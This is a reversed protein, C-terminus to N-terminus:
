QESVFEFVRTILDHVAHADEIDAEIFAYELDEFFQVLTEASDSDHNDLAVLLELQEKRTFGSFIARSAKGVDIKDIDDWAVGDEVQEQVFNVINDIVALCQNKVDASSYAGTFAERILRRITGVTTKM